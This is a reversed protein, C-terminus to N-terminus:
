TVDAPTAATTTSGAPVPEDAPPKLYSTIWAVPLAVLCIVLGVIIVSSAGYSAIAAGGALAGIAIGANLASAPLTAALDKGPGALTVIRFQLSPVLGLGFVGWLILAAAVLVPIEGVLALVGLAVIVIAIAVILTRGAATAAFRGGAFVGVATAAGYALLFVSILPGSIGTVDELFPTIYTFAAYQGAFILVALALLALVRPAFAYRVQSSIGSAGSAPVAPIVVLCVVLCVVGLAVTAAFSGRWGLAEGILTGLPVGFAVSVAFGGIVASIARGVREPPAITVAVTFAVGVFLGHLSGTIARAAVFMGFDAGLAAVLTVALYATLTSLLLIRRGFRVSLAALVPGGIALGLAYATVLTGTASISVGLDESIPSLMGVVGLEATGLVFTSLFLTALTLNARVDGARPQQSTDM